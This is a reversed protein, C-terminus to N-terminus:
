HSTQLLIQLNKGTVYHTPCHSGFSMGQHLDRSGIIVIQNPFFFFLRQIHMFNFTKLPSRGPNDLQARIGIVIAKILSLCLSLQSMCMNSSTIQICLLFLVSTTLFWSLWPICVPALLPLFFFFFFPTEGLAEAPLM